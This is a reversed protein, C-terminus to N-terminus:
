QNIQKSNNVKDAFVNIDTENIIFDEGYKEITEIANPFLMSKRKPTAYYTTINKAGYRVVFDFDNIKDDNIKDFLNNMTMEATM